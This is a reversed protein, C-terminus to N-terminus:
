GWAVTRAADEGAETLGWYGSSGHVLRQRVLVRFTVKRIGLDSPVIPKGEMLMRELARMQAPTLTAVM